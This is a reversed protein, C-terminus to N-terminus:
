PYTWELKGIYTAGNALEYVMDRNRKEIHSTRRAYAPAGNLKVLLWCDVPALDEPRNWHLAPDDIAPLPHLHEALNM